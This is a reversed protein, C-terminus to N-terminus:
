GERLLPEGYSPMPLVDNEYSETADIGQDRAIELAETSSGARISWTDHITWTVPIDYLGEGIQEEELTIVGNDDITSPHASALGEARAAAIIQHLHDWMRANHDLVSICHRAWGDSLTRRILAETNQKDTM